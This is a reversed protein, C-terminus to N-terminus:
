GARTCGFARARRREALRVRGDIGGVSSLSSDHQLISPKWAPPLLENVRQQPTLPLRELVDRLYACRDHGNLKARRAHAQCSIEM